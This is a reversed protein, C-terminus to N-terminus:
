IGVCRPTYSHRHLDTRPMLPIISLLSLGLVQLVGKGVTLKDVVFTVRVSKPNFEPRRPFIRPSVEQVM